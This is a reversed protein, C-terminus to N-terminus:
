KGCISAVKCNILSLTSCDDEGFCPPKPLNKRCRNLFNEIPIGFRPDEVFIPGWVDMFKEFIEIEEPTRNITTPKCYKKHM